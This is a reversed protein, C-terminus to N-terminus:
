KGNRQKRIAQIAAFAISLLVIFVLAGVLEQRSLGSLLFFIILIAAVPIAYGGPIRFANTTMTEKTQRFRIVSIAVGLYILLIAASSIIALQKFGGVISVILDLSAYAVIAVFPTAFKPHIRALHNVSRIKQLM